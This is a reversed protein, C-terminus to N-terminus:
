ANERRHEFVALQNVGLQFKRYRTVSFGTKEALAFIDAKSWYHKHEAINDKGVVGLFALTELIPKAMKTPTTLFIRGGDKLCNKFKGFVEYVDNPYLHEITALTVISDVRAGDLPSHDYNVITYKGTVLKGLEGDNAGFDLVDGILYPRAMRFRYDQLFRELYISTDIMEFESHDIARNITRATLGTTTGLRLCGNTLM